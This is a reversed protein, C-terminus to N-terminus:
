RAGLMMADRAARFETGERWNPFADTTALRYGVTFLLQLDQVLGGLDWSDLMEDGPQHYRLARYEEERARTWEIGHEVHDQGSGTNLAPVGQKAFPFHDSRYYYGKEPEQDPRVTRDQEAAATRVYDDLESMGLGVVVIDRMPGNVNMGDMNIAAVTQRLPVVPQQAYYSSGLLGQEEATVALFLVSRSPPTSLATYARAMALLGAIGTANDEAGNFIQDGERTPDTGFHDWHAMYIVHEEPRDTGRLRAVFNRSTSRVVENHLAVSASAELPVGTFGRVQARTKLSDYEQGGLRFIARAAELGIWGEVTARGANGDATVLTFQPGTWSNRVVDWGYAAPETEHVILVGAAGQRAAEEFKYTWRGYYTMTRGRFLSTDGTAFGPDNVLVVVTKGKVDLGAYDDWGYEPAVVGYGVFVLPSAEIAVSEDLRRSFAVFDDGFRFRAQAGGAQVVLEAGPQVTTRVLPVEQYWSTGNGPELGLKQFEAELYAMTRDEGVSSPARGAFSDSAIVAIHAALDGANFSELAAGPPQPAGCAVASLVAMLACLHRQRM